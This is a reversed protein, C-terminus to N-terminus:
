GRQQIIRTRTEEQTSATRVEEQRWLPLRTVRIVDAWTWRGGSHRDNKREPTVWMCSIQRKMQGEKTRGAWAQIRTNHQTINDPNETIIQKCMWVHAYKRRQTTVSLYYHPPKTTDTEFLLLSLSPHPLPNRHHSYSHTQSNKVWLNAPKWLKQTRKMQPKSSGGGGARWVYGVDRSDNMRPQEEGSLDRTTLLPSIRHDFHNDDRNDEVSDDRNNVEIYLSGGWMTEVRQQLDDHLCLLRILLHWWAWDLEDRGIQM